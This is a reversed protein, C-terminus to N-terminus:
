LPLAACIYRPPACGAPVRKESFSLAALMFGARSRQRAVPRLRLCNVVQRKRFSRRVSPFSAVLGVPFAPFFGAWAGQVGYPRIRPFACGFDNHLAFYLM